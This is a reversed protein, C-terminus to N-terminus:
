RPNNIKKIKEVESNEFFHQKNRLEDDPSSVVIPKESIDNAEQLKTLFPVFVDQNPLCFDTPNKM